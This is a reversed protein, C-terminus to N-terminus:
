LVNEISMNTTTEIETTDRIESKPIELTKGKAIDVRVIQELTKLNATVSGLMKSLEEGKESMIKQLNSEWQDYIDTERILLQKRRRLEENEFVLRRIEHDIQETEKQLTDFTDFPIPTTDIQPTSPTHHPSPLSITPPISFINQLTYMELQDLKPEMTKSMLSYFQTTAKDVMETKDAFDKDEKIVKDILRVGEELYDFVADRVDDHFSLPHFGFYNEEKAYKSVLTSDIRTNEGINVDTTNTDNENNDGGGSSKNNHSSM